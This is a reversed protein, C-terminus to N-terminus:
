EESWTTVLLSFNICEHVGMVSVKIRVHKKHEGTNNWVCVIPYVQTWLSMGIEYNM